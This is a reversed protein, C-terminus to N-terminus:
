RRKYISAFYIPGWGQRDPLAQFGYETAEFGPPTALAEVDFTEPKRKYLKAIVQDNEHPSLSCTSYILQGGPRLSDFGGALLAYQRIGFNKSRKEKWMALDSAKQVVGREGSCPADLLVRDFSEQDSRGFISAEKGTVKVKSRLEKPVYRKLVSMLRFRRKASMENAVMEGRTEEPEAGPPFLLELLILTKGGPAACMDLVRDGPQVKLARAAVVSAPDMRYYPLLTKNEQALDFRETLSFCHDVEPVAEGV